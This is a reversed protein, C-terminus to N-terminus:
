LAAGLWALAVLVAAAGAAASVAAQRARRRSVAMRDARGSPIVAKSLQTNVPTYTPMFRGEAGDRRRDAGATGGRGRRRNLFSMLNAPRALYHGRGM